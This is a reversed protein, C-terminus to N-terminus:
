SLLDHLRPQHYLTNHSRASVLTNEMFTKYEGKLVNDNSVEKKWQHLAQLMVEVFRVLDKAPLVELSMSANRFIETSKDSISDCSAIFESRKDLFFFKNFNFLGSTPDVTCPMQRLLPHSLSDISFILSCYEHELTIKPSVLAEFGLELFDNIYAKYSHPDLKLVTMMCRLRIYLRRFPDKVDQWISEALKFYYDWQRKRNQVLIKGIGLWSELWADVEQYPYLPGTCGLHLCVCSYLKSSFGDLVESAHQDASYNENVPESHDFLALLTPDNMDLEYDGYDDQSEQSEELRPKPLTPLPIVDARVALFRQICSCIELGTRHDKILPSSLIQPMWVQLYATDPYSAVTSASRDLTPTDMIFRITGLVTHILLIVYNIDNEVGNKVHLDGYEALLDDIMESAWQLVDTLPKKFHRLLIAINMMARIAAIRSDPDALKFNVYRRVQQLRSRIQKESPDVYIAVYIASYRNYLKSLDNDLPPSTKSFSTAGVPVVLSLLRTVKITRLREEGNFNRVACIVLKLLISYATDSTSYSHCLAENRDRIFPPFDDPEGLLNGFERSRFISCLERFVEDADNTDWLWRSSLIYCRATVLRLYADRKQITTAPKGGDRGADANLRISQLVKIIIPWCTQAKVLPRSIGEISFQSFANMTFITKWTGESQALPSDPKNSQVELGAQLLRWFSSTPSTSSHALFASVHFVCVWYELVRVHPSNKDLTLGDRQLPQMIRDTDYELLRRILQVIYEEATRTNLFNATENNTLKRQRSYSIRLHLEVALWYLSFSRFDLCHGDASVLALREDMRTLLHKTQASIITITHNAEEETSCLAKYTVFQCLAYAMHQMEATSDMSEPAELPLTTINYLRDFVSALGESMEGIPRSSDLCIDLLTLAPSIAFDLGTGNLFSILEFLRGRGIYGERGVTLGALLPQIELDLSIKQVSPGHGDLDFEDDHHEVSTVNLFRNVLRTTRHKHHNRPMKEPLKEPALADHFEQDNLDVQIVPRSRGSSVNFGDNRTYYVNQYKDPRARKYRKKKRVKEPAIQHQVEAESDSTRTRPTTDRNERSPMINGSVEKIREFPIKTQHFRKPKARHTVIENANAVRTRKGGNPARKRTRPLVVRRTRQLMRDILEPERHVGSPIRQPLGRQEYGGLHLSEDVTPEWTLWDHLEERDLGDESNELLEIDEEIETPFEDSIQIVEKSNSDPSSDSESESDGKIQYRAPDRSTPSVFRKRGHGPRTVDPTTKKSTENRNSTRATNDGEMFKKVVGAPLFRRLIREQASKQHKPSYLSEPESSSAVFYPDTLHPEETVVVDPEDHSRPGRRLRKGKPKGSEEDSSGNISYVPPSASRVVVTDETVPELPGLSPPRFDNDYPVNFNLDLDPFLPTHRRAPISTPSVEQSELQDGQHDIQPIRLPFPRFTRKRKRGRHEQANNNVTLKPQKEFEVTMPLDDDSSPLTLNLEKMLEDAIRRRERRLRKAEENQQEQRVQSEDLERSDVNQSEMWDDDQDEGHHERRHEGHDGGLLTRRVIAEPLHRLLQKYQRKDYEFPNLQKASRNRLSYKRSTIDPPIIIRPSPSQAVRDQDESSPNAEHVRYSTSFTPSQIHQSLPTLSSLRSSTEQSNRLSDIPDEMMGTDKESIRHFNPDPISDLAVHDSLSQRLPQLTELSKSTSTQNRSYAGLEDLPMGLSLESRLPTLPTTSRSVINQSLFPFLCIPDQSSAPEDDPSLKSMTSADLVGTITLCRPSGPSYPVLDDEVDRLDIPSSATHGLLSPSIPPTQRTLESFITENDSVLVQPPTRPARLKGWAKEYYNQERTQLIEQEDVDSTDVVDGCTNM